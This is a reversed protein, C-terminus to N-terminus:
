LMEPLVYAFGEVFGEEFSEDGLVGAKDSTDAEHASIGIGGFDGTQSLM